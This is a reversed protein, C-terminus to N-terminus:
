VSQVRKLYSARALVSQAASAQLTLRRDQMLQDGGFTAMDNPLDLVQEILRLAKLDLRDFAEAKGDRKLHHIDDKVRARARSIEIPEWKRRSPIRGFRPVSLGAAKRARRSAHWRRAGEWAPQMPRPGRWGTSLGGHLRCRSKGRVPYRRCYGGGGHLRAGCRRRPMADSVLRSQALTQLGMSRPLGTRVRLLIHRRPNALLVPV